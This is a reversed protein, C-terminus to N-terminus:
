RGVPQKKYLIIQQVAYPFKREYDEKQALFQMLVFQKKQQETWLTRQLEQERTTRYLQELFHQHNSTSNILTITNM